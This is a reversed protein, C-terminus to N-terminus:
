EAAAAPLGVWLEVTGERPKQKSWDVNSKVVPPPAAIGAPELLSSVAARLDEARAADQDWFYRIESIPSGSPRVQEEGPVVYGLDRLRRTLEAAVERPMGYFQFFVRTQNRIDSLRQTVQESVNALAQTANAITQVNSSTERSLQLTAVVDSLSKVQNALEALKGGLEGLSSISQGVTTLSAEVEKRRLDLTDVQDALDKLKEAKPEFGALQENLRDITAQARQNLAEIVGLQITVKETQAQAAQLAPDVKKAIMEQTQTDARETIREFIDIGVYTLVAGVVAGILGYTKFLSGKVNTAVRDTLRREILELYFDPIEPPRAGANVHASEDSM